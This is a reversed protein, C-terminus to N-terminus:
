QRPDGTLFAPQPALEPLWGAEIEPRRGMWSEVEDLVREREAEPLSRLNAAHTAEPVTVKLTQPSVEFAGGTWPDYEGYVFVLSENTSAVWDRIELMADPEFEPMTGEPPFMPMGPSRLGELHDVAFEQAGLQHLAQYSYASRSRRWDRDEYPRAYRLVQSLLDEGSASRIEDATGIWRDCDEIGRGQWFVWEMIEVSDEFGERLGGSLTFDEVEYGDEVALEVVEDLRAVIASQTDRLQQRCTEEGIQDLFPVYRPDRPAFSIPAVYPVTIDVDGPYFYRHYISTMGGKSHGTSLWARRYFPALMLVFRHHDAAAQEITVHSWEEPTPQLPRSMGFFRQETDLQNAGLSETLESQYDGVQSYGSTYLVMPATRDRHQLVARQTFTGVSPDNHDLPQEYQLEYARVGVYGTRVERFTLGPQQALYVELDRADSATDEWEARVDLTVNPAGAAHDIRIDIEEGPLVSFAVSLQDHVYEGDETEVVLPLAREGETESTVVVDALPVSTPEMGGFGCRPDDLIACGDPTRVRVVLSGTCGERADCTIGMGVVPSGESLRVQLSAADAKGVANDLKPVDADGDAEPGCATALLMAVSCLTGLRM